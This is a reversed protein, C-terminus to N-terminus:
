KIKIGTNRRTEVINVTVGGKQVKKKSQRIPQILGLVNPAASVNLVELTESVESSNDLEM